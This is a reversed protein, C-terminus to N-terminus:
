AGSALTKQRRCCSLRSCRRQRPLRTSSARVSVIRLTDRHMQCDAEIFVPLPTQLLEQLAPSDELAFDLGSGGEHLIPLGKRSVLVGMVQVPASDPADLYFRVGLSPRGGKLPMDAYLTRARGLNLLRSLGYHNHLLLMGGQRIPLWRGNSKRRLEPEGRMMITESLEFFHRDLLRLRATYSLDDNKCVASYVQGAQLRPFSAAVAHGTLLLLLCAIFFFGTGSGAPLPAGRTDDPCPRLRIRRPHWLSFCM